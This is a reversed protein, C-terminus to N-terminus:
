FAQSFRFHLQGQRLRLVANPPNPQPIIFEPPNLLYGYDVAFEGGIPTKIRFGLGVTHTWVARINTQFVDGPPDVDSPNFIDGIRNFVNGGDYFPVVRVSDTVPIRAEINTVALANGGFPISFPNLNVIEGQQNRFVGQPVIVVRPGAQEFEFGRLTTSGGAFFRESIPLSGALGPFQTGAFRDDGAFVNAMGLIGRAAVTTNKLRKFTFYRNYSIQFKNFGINAGLIPTSLNYEATLYDGDTPDGAAYRCPEGPEGREIIEILTYRISCNKRTDRVFTASFGSIRVKADPRLLERILLSEFNFLRVDEFRYKVFLISRDRRSITRNTEVALTLRNLTPDGAAAGFEDIPNGEEDIRQVVGFTGRDFTSRFFRTVTSDRQYQATFRLPAYQRNGLRDEGDRIFRPNIYDFQVIQQRQSVRILAGGQQLRGFLNFHRIDFFGSLGVDTSYGGGYTILRPKQEALNIIIDSQRNQGDPTEGAPEAKIEVLNFADTSYLSQESSFIDSQRLVKDPKLDIAKLIAERDTRENGNILIRNVFVKQGENEVKYSIKVEDSAADPDDPQEIVSYSVKADYYGRDAYFQSLRRAGNRARARSFNRGALEPLEDRLEAETFSTNGEIEIGAIKTPVGERVLFTVILSEGDLSVGQRIAVQANRYGLERMLSLITLRDQQLLELSTYGRGYGFFPIFGLINAEQSELVPRVDEVTLEDTGELRIEELTLRRNLDVEYRLNVRRDTLDAGSLAACLINTENETESAEEETFKPEVSCIPTVEAFFYGREQYYNELRREGEVIASYDLTGERKVPLLRTQRREGIKEEGVDVEVEVLAGAEGRLEIDVTNSESDYIVRPENLSPALFDNERLAERIREVDDTLKARSFNEGKQLDLEPTVASRDFKDIDILFDDVRAQENPVVTFTVNVETENELPQQTYTVEAEFYGRERLYALMLNANQQLVRESITSGAPLINLRLLLQQETVAEGLHPGVNISVRKAVTKRKIVFRLIVEGAGATEAEVRASVIRDTDYLKELANRVRVTSYTDGLENEAISRFQNSASVDTDIGEFAIDIRLIRRDEFVNQAFAGAAPLLALWLLLLLAARVSPRLRRIRGRGSM